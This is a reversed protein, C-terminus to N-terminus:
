RADFVHNTSRYMIVGNEKLIKAMTAPGVDQSPGMYRGFVEKDEPFGMAMDRFMVWNCWGIECISLATTSWIKDKMELCNDWLAKPFRKSVM